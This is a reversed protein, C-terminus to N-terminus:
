NIGLADAALELINRLERIRRKLEELETTEGPKPEQSNSEFYAKLQAFNQPSGSEQLSSAPIDARYSHAISSLLLISLDLPRHWPLEEAQRSWMEGTYRWVKLSVESKDWSALGISLGKADTDNPHYAGDKHNYSEVRILPTHSLHTPIPQNM